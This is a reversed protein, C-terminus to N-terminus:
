APGPPPQSDIARQRDLERRLEARSRSIEEFHRRCLPVLRYMGFTEPEDCPGSGVSHWGCGGPRDDGEEFIVCEVGLNKM